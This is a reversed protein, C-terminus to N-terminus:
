VMEQASQFEKCKEAPCTCTLPVAKGASLHKSVSKPRKKCECPVMGCTRFPIYCQCEELRVQLTTGTDYVREIPADALDFNLKRFHKCPELRAKVLQKRRPAWLLTATSMPECEPTSTSTSEKMENTNKNGLKLQAKTLVPM